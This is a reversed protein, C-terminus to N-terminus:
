ASADRQTNTPSSDKAPSAPFFVPSLVYPARTGGATNRSLDVVVRTLDAILRSREDPSLWVVIQRYSVEDRFPRADDRDLYVNFDALLAAMAATFAQRHDNGNM